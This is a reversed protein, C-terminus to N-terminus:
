MEMSDNSEGFIDIIGARYKNILINSINSKIKLDNAYLSASMEIALELLAYNFCVILLFLEKKFDAHPFVDKKYKEFHAMCFADKFEKITCALQPDKRDIIIEKAKDINQITKSNRM